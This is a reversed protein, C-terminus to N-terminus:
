AAFPRIPMYIRCQFDTVVDARESFLIRKLKAVCFKKKDSVFSFM